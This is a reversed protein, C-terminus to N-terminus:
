TFQKGAIGLALKVLILQNLSVGERMAEAKLAVHQSKPLRLLICKPKQRTPQEVHLHLEKGPIGM